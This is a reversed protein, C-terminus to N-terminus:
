SSFRKVGDNNPLEQVKGILEEVYEQESDFTVTDYQDSMMLGHVKNLVPLEFTQDKIKAEFDKRFKRVTWKVPWAAADGLACITNGEINEAVSILLDLDNHKGTGDMIRNLVKLMWGCGERCPTCQGCSEHYYFKTIRQLVHVVDTDEDMVIIGATGIYTGFEKLSENDMKAKLSEERTLPPMSSGGPIVMKIEKGNKVGGCNENILTMLPTGSPLEYVGPKNM